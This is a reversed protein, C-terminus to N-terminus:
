RNTASAPSPAPPQAEQIQTESKFLARFLPIRKIDFFTVYLMFSILLIAFATTTYEVIRVNIPRRRVAEIVSLVIHGGDLVPIPLMNLVALNVNLLVLFNLALRYDTAVQFSLISLIGVPGSLDRARVGTEQTHILANLVRLTRDWVEKINVWPLPGPRQLEYITASRDGLVARILGKGTTPDLRPTISLQMRRGDRELVVDTPQGPRKQILDILQQTSVVPIQDFSVIVDRPKLGAEEAAGGPMVEKIEPHDQSELNLVKLGIAKSVHTKLHYSQREGKREITVPLVTGRATIATESVEQWSNVKKGDVEVIRDGERIGLAYEESDPDVYGIISPNVPVPLGTFYIVTAIAFAFVINMFPGAVAVLIKSLPSVPPLPEQCGTDGELADSTVMQPLKVFGGAPIWRLSWDVGDVKWSCVKPGFGIAFELVKLGRRRAVWYHGFEHIFISAGFFLLVVVVVKIILFIDM